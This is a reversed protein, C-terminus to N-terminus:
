SMLCKLMKTSIQFFTQGLISHCYHGQDPLQGALNGQRERGKSHPMPGDESLAADDVRRYLFMWYTCIKLNNAFTQVSMLKPM